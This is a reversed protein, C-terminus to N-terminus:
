VTHERVNYADAVCQQKAPREKSLAFSTRAHGHAYLDAPADQVDETRESSSHPVYLKSSRILSRTFKIVLTQNGQNSLLLAM